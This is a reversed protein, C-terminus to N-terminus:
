VHARGIQFWERLRIVEPFDVDYWDVGTPPDCRHARTDLGSGLEVVVADPHQTTFRNVANDLIKARVAHVLVVPNPVRRLQSFDYDLTDVLWASVTDGLIPNRSRADVARMYLPLFLVEQVPTLGAFVTDVSGGNAITSRATAATASASPGAATVIRRTAV